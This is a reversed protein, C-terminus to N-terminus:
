LKEGTLPHTLAPVKSSKKRFHGNAYVGGGWCNSGESEKADVGKTTFVFTTTSTCHDNKYVVTRQSYDLTDVFSGSNYSPAGKCIYFTMAVKHQTIAKVQIAGFYGYTDGNKKYTKSQLVYTGTPSFNNKQGFLALCHVSLFATIAHTFIRTAVMIRRNPPHDSPM